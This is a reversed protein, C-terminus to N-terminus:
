EDVEDTEVAAGHQELWEPVDTANSTHEHAMCQRACRLSCSPSFRTCSAVLTGLPTAAYTIEETTGTQPCVILKRRM